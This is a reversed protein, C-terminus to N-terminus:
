GVGPVMPVELPDPVKPAPASAPVSTSTTPPVKAPGQELRSQNALTETKKGLCEVNCGLCFTMRSATVFLCAPCRRLSVGEYKNQEIPKVGM